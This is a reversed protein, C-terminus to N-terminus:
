LEFKSHRLQKGKVAYTHKANVNISTKKANNKFMNLNKSTM